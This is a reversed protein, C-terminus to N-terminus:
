SAGTLAALQKQLEALQAALTANQNELAKTKEASASHIGSMREKLAATVREREATSWETYEDETYGLKVWVAGRIFDTLDGDDLRGKDGAANHVVDFYIDSPVNCTLSCTYPVDVQKGNVKRSTYNEPDNVWEAFAGADPAAMAAASLSLKTDNTTNKAAMNGRGTSRDQPGADTNAHRHTQWADYSVRNAVSITNRQM